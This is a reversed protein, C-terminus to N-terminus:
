ERWRRTRRKKILKHLSILAEITPQDNPYDFGAHAEQPFIMATTLIVYIIILHRKM